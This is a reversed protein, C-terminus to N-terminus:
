KMLEERDYVLVKRPLLHSALRVTSKHFPKPKNFRNRYETRVIDTHLNKETTWTTGDFQTMGGIFGSAGRSSLGRTSERM